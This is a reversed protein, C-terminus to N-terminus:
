AKSKNVAEHVDNFDTEEIELKVKKFLHNDILHILRQDQPMEVRKENTNFNVRLVFQMCSKM